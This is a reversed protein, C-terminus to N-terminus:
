LSWGAYFVKVMVDSSPSSGLFKFDVIEGEYTNGNFWSISFTEGILNRPDAGGAKAKSGARSASASASKSKAKAKAKAKPEAAAKARKPAARARAVPSPPLEDEPDFDEDQSDEEYDTEDESDDEVNCHRWELEHFRVARILRAEHETVNKEWHESQDEYRLKIDVPFIM